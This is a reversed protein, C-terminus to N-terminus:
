VFQGLGPISAVVENVTAAGAKERAYAVFARAVSQVQGMGLGVGTLASFVEMVGSAGGEGNGIAERAGPLADVLPAVKDPKGERLLFKLIIIVAKRAIDPDIGTQAAVRATLEEM